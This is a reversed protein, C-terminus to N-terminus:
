VARMGNKLLEIFGKIESDLNEFKEDVIDEGSKRARDFIYEKFKISAGTMFISLLNDDIDKRIYGNRKGDRIFELMYADSIKMWYNMSEDKFNDYKGLFVDQLFIVIDREERLQIWSKKSIEYMYDFISIHKEKFDMSYGYKKMVLDTAWEVSFLFLENKNQFYQYISGKAVGANKAIDGINGKEFGNALFESIASRMVREQKEENLNFFTDKPVM